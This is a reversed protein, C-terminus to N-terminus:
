PTIHYWKVIFRSNVKTTFIKVLLEGSASYGHSMGCIHFIASSFSQLLSHGELVGLIMVIAAICSRCSPFQFPRTHWGCAGHNSNRYRHRDSHWFHSSNKVLGPTFVMLCCQQFIKSDRCINSAILLTVSPLQIQWCSLTSISLVMWNNCHLVGMKREERAIARFRDLAWNRDHPSKPLWV